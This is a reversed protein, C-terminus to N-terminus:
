GNNKVFGVDPAQSVLIARLYNLKFYEIMLRSNDSSFLSCPIYHGKKENKEKYHNGKVKKHKEKYM